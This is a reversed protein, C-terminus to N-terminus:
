DLDEEFYWEVFPIRDTFEKIYDYIENLHMDYEPYKEKDDDNDNFYDVNGDDGSVYVRIIGNVTEVEFVISNDDFYELFEYNKGYIEAFGEIYITNNSVHFLDEELIGERLLIDIVALTAPSQTGIFQNQEEFDRGGIFDFQEKLNRYQSESIIYKM